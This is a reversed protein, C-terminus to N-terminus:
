TAAFSARRLGSEFRSASFFMSRRVALGAPGQLGALLDPFLPVLVAVLEEADLRAGPLAQDIADRM